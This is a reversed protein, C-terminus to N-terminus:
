KAAARAKAVCITHAKQCRETSANVCDAWAVQQEYSLPKMDAKCKDLAFPDAGCISKFQDCGDPPPPAPPAEAKAASAATAPAPPLAPPTEVDRRVVQGNKSLWNKMAKRASRRLDSDGDEMHAEILPKAEPAGSQGLTLLMQELAEPKQERAAAALLAPVASAPPGDHERLDEAAERRVKWEPNELKTVEPRVEQGSKKSWLKLGKEAGERIDDERNNLYAELVARAEPAGSAGLTILMEAYADKDRERQIAALLHPVAEPPPGDHDRLEEAADKRKDADGSGLGFGISPDGATAANADGRHRHCGAPLLAAISVAVIAARPGM